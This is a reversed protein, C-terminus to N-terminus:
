SKLSLLVFCRAETPSATLFDLLQGNVGQNQAPSACINKLFFNGTGRLQLNM